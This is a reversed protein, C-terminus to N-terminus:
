PLAGLARLLDTVDSMAHKAQAGRVVWAPVSGGPESYAEYTLRTGGRDNPECTWLARLSPIRTHHADPPPGLDNRLRFRIQRRGGPEDPPRDAEVTYDRDSVVPTRIQDYFVIRRPERALFERRKLGSVVGALIRRWMEEVVREPTRDVETLVLYERYSSGSVSRQCGLVTGDHDFPAWGAPCRGQARVVGASALALVVVALQARM